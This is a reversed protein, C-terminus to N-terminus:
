ERLLSKEPPLRDALERTERFIIKNEPHGVFQKGCQGCRFEPKGNRISGNRITNESNCAPCM